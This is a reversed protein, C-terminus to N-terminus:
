KFAALAKRAEEKEPFSAPSSVAREFAKRAGEVDGVKQSAMALHYQVTPNQPLQAASERLLGVARQYVGRKYLVWGLTDSIGPDNPAAEKATEALRLAKEKDGGHETLLWALNNAAPV